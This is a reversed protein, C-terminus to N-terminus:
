LFNIAKLFDEKKRQSISIHDNNSMLLYGGDEKVYSMVHKLNILHSHHVRIFQHSKLKTEFEKLNKSSLIKKGNIFVCNTYKGDAECHILDDIEVFELGSLTSIAFRNDSQTFNISNFLEEIRSNDIENSKGVSIKEVSKVLEDIDIPKLIYDLANVKFAKLAYRDYATVFIVDFNREKLRALLEFGSGTPMEIDLFLLDIKEAEIIKQAKQISNAQGIVEVQTCYKKLLLELSDRNMKVDDVILTKLKEM